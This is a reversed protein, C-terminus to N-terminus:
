FLLKCLLSYNPRTKLSGDVLDKVIFLEFAQTEISEALSKDKKAEDRVNLQMIAVHDLADKYETSGICQNLVPLFEPCDFVAYSNPLISVSKKNTLEQLRILLKSFNEM